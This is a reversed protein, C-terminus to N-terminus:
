RQLLSRQHSLAKPQANLPRMTQAIEEILALNGDGAIELYQEGVTTLLFFAQMKDPGQVTFSMQKRGDVLDGSTRSIISSGGSEWATARHTAYAALDGKPDWQYVTIGMRTGGPLLKEATSGPSFPQAAAGRSGIQTKPALTWSAPYDVQFGRTEDKYTTAAFSRQVQTPKPQMTAVGLSTPSESHTPSPIAPDTP